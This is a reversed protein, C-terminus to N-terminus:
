GNVIEKQTCGCGHIKAYRADCTGCDFKHSPHQFFHVVTKGKRVRVEPYLVQQTLAMTYATGSHSVQAIPRYVWGGNQFDETLIEITYPFQKM